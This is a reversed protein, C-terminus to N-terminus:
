TTCLAVPDYKLYDSLIDNHRLEDQGHSINASERLSEHPWNVMLSEIYDSGQIRPLNRVDRFTLCNGSRSYIYCPVDNPIAAVDLRHLSGPLRSCRLVPEGASRNCSTTTLPTLSNWVAPLRECLHSKGQCVFSAGDCLHKTPGAGICAHEFPVRGLWGRRTKMHLPNIVTLVMDSTDYVREM